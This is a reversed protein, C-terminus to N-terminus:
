CLLRHITHWYLRHITHKGNQDFGDSHLQEMTTYVLCEIGMIVIIINQNIPYLTQDSGLRLAAHHYHYRWRHHIQTRWTNSEMANHHLWAPPCGHCLLMPEWRPQPCGSWQPELAGSPGVARSVTPCFCLLCAWLMETLSCCSHVSITLSPTIWFTKKHGSQQSLFGLHFYFM